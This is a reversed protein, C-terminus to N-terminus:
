ETRTFAIQLTTHHYLVIYAFPSREILADQPVPLQREGQAEGQAKRGTGKQAKRGTGKERHRRRAQRGTGAQRGKM